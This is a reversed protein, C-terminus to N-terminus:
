KIWKYGVRKVSLICDNGILQKVKRVHVDVTRDCVLIDKEWLNKVFEERPIVRGKNMIFYHAMQVVKKPARMPLGDKFIMYSNIDVSINETSAYENLMAPNMQRREMEKAQELMTGSTIGLQNAFWEVATQKM